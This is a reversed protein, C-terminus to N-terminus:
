TLESWYRDSFKQEVVQAFSVARRILEACVATSRLTANLAPWSVNCRVSYLVRDPLDGARVVVEHDINVSVAARADFGVGWNVTFAHAFTSHSKMSALPDSSVMAKIFSSMQEIALSLKLDDRFTFSEETKLIRRM